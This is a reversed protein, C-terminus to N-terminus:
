GSVQTIKRAEREETGKERGRSNRQVILGGTLTLSAFVHRKPGSCVTWRARARVCVSVSVCLEGGGARGRGLGHVPCM